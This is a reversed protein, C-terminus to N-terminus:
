GSGITSSSNRSRAGDPQSDTKNTSSQSSQQLCSNLRITKDEQKARVMYGKIVQRSPSCHVMTLPFSDYLLRKPILYAVQQREQQIHTPFPTKVKGRTKRGEVLGAVYM